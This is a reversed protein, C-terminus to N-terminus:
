IHILSLGVSQKAHELIIRHNEAKVQDATENLSCITRDKENLYQEYQRKADGLGEIEEKINALLLKFHVIKDELMEGRERMTRAEKSQNFYTLIAQRKKEAKTKELKMQEALKRAKRIAIQSSDIAGKLTDVKNSLIESAENINVASDRLSEICSGNIM